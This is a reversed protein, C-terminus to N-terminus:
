GYLDLAQQQIAKHKRSSGNWLIDYIEKATAQDYGMDLMASIYEDKKVKGNKDGYDSAALNYAYKFSAYDEASYGKEKRLYDYVVETVNPENESPDYDPMYLKMAIDMDKESLGKTGSIAQLQYGIKGRNKAPVSQVSKLASLTKQSSLGSQRGELYKKTAGEASDMIAKQITKSQKTFSDYSEELAKQQAPRESGHDWANTMTKLANTMASNSVKGVIYAGPDKSQAAEEMWSEPYGDHDKMAKIAGTKDAYEYVLKIAAQKGSDTLNQYDKSAILKDLVKKSTQGRTTAYDTWQEKTLRVDKRTEGSSDMYTLTKPAVEPVVGEGFETKSLRNIENVTPDSKDVKSVTSPNLFANFVREGASGASVTNGWEDIKDTKLGMAEGLAPVNSAVREWGRVESREDNAFTTQKNAHSATVAQRFLSPIGQSLYSTAMTSLIKYVEKNDTAYKTDQILDNLSSLCSLSLMPDLTNQSAGMFRIVGDAWDGKEEEPVNASSYINAGVFFPMNVPAAWEVSYSTTKGGITVEISYDKSGQLKEEDTATSVLRIGDGSPTHMGKALAFGMGMAATGTLGTALSNCIEAATANHNFAKIATAVIEAISYEKFRVLINAPTRRFPLVADVATGFARMTRSNSNKLKGLSAVADSFDNSDNFTNIYANDIAYQRAKAMVDSSVKGTQIDDISVGQATLYNALYKAYYGNKFIMDGAEPFYEVVKRAAEFGKGLTKSGLVTDFVVRNESMKDKSVDAGLKASYKLADQAAESKADMKAFELLDKDTTLAKTRDEKSMVGAKELAAEMGAALKDKVFAFPKMAANGAINRVQTKPNGLMCMYRWTDWKEKLTAPAQSGISQYIAEVADAQRGTDGSRVAELYQTKLNEPIVAEVNKGRTKGHTNLFNDGVRKIAEVQGEPTMSRILKFMQLNRGSIQAMTAIDAYIQAADEQTAEGGAAYRTYLVIAKEIDGEQIRRSGINQDIQRLVARDGWKAIDKVAETLSKENSKPDFSFVGSQILDKVQDVGEDPTNRSGVINKAVESVKQGNQDRVPVEDLRVDTKRDPQVNDDSLLEQYQAHGSFNEEAAGVSAPEVTEGRAARTAEEAANQVLQEPTPQQSSALQETQTDYKVYQDGGFVNDITRTWGGTATNRDGQKASEYNVILGDYGNGTLYDRISQTYQKAEAEPLYAPSRYKLGAAHVLESWDSDDKVVFPRDFHVTEKSVNSGYNKAGNETPAFYRGEGAIPVQAHAYIEGKAKGEGHFGELTISEGTKAKKFDSVPQQASSVANQAVDQVMKDPGQAAQTSKQEVMKQVTDQVAQEPSVATQPSQISQLVKLYDENPEVRHGDYFDTYGDMLRRNIEFEIRKSAANNESGEDNVIAFLGKEIQDYSMGDSDLLSAISDSTHRKVGSYEGTDKNYFREGRTSDQLESLMWAAQEQYFRKVEPNEYMYAKVNRKGVNNWDRNKMPNKVDAYEDPESTMWDMFQDETWNPDPRDPRVSDSNAVDQTSAPQTNAEGSQGEVRDQGGSVAEQAIDQIQEPTLQQAQNERVMQEVIDSVTNPQQAEPQQPTQLPQDPLQEMGLQGDRVQDITDTIAQDQRQVDEPTLTTQQPQVQDMSMQGGTKELQQREAEAQIAQAAKEQRDLQKQAANGKVAAVGGSVGGSIGAVLLQQEAQALVDKDAQHEAWARAEAETEFMGQSLAKDMYAEVSQNYQSSDKLIAAEAIYSGLISAGENSVEIGAQKVMNVFVNTNGALAVSALQDLPIKDTLADVAANATAYLYAQEPTAGQASAEAVTQAFQNTANVAMGVGPGLVIANALSSATGLGAQYLLAAGQRVWNSDDEGAINKAVESRVTNNYVRVADMPVFSELTNYRGTRNSLEDLRGKLSMAGQFPATVLTGISRTVAGGTTSVDERAKQQVEQEQRQHRARGYTEALEDLRQQGYKELLSGAAKKRQAPKRILEDFINESRGEDRVTTYAELEQIEQPTMASIEDYDSLFTENDKRANEAAKLQEDAQRQAKKLQLERVQQTTQQGTTQQELYSLANKQDPGTQVQNQQQQYTQQPQSPKQANQYDLLDSNAVQKAQQKKQVKNSLSQQKKSEDQYTSSTPKNSSKKKSSTSNRSDYASNQMRRYDTFSQSGSVQSPTLKGSQFANKKGEKVINGGMNNVYDLRKKEEETLPM